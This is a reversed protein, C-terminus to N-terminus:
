LCFNQATSIDRHMFSESHLPSYWLESGQFGCFVVNPFPCSYIETGIILLSHVGFDDGFSMSWSMQIRFYYILSEPELCPPLFSGIGLARKQCGPTEEPMHAVADKCM